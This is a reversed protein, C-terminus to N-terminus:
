DSFYKNSYKRYLDKQKNNLDITKGQIYAIVVNNTRMDLIDGTSIIITADKGVEISGVTKDLGLIKATNLTITQLAEEKKLGYAAATGAIFPLNRQKWAGNDRKGGMGMCFEVGAQLLLYPTKYPQDVDEDQKGPLSHTARLIVPINNEKLLDTVMWSDRGGVIVISIKYKKSFNVAAIIDRASQTNIFLKKSGDFLGRMAELKLNKNKGAKSKSYHEAANFFNALRQIKHTNDKKKASGPEAWWGGRIFSSPWNLHIGEDIKYVADEWNWGDLEVISSTGSIMGGAPTIQALLIGNSRITPTIKSDTSYAIISRVNPNIKGVEKYDHTARVLDIETLGIVTSPAILGPYVHKGKINILEKQATDPLIGSYKEVITLKGDKFEILSNEIVDGTGLHAIGGILIIPKQQPKAPVQQTWGQFSLAMLLLISLTSRM